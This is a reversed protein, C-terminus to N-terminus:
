LLNEEAWLVVEQAYDILKTAVEDINSITVVDPYRTYLYAPTLEKCRDRIEKPADIKRAILVLDHIKILENFKKIYVSKLSKEAAQQAFFAAAEYKGGDLNYQATNLDEKAKQIWKKIEISKKM